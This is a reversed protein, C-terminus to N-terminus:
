KNPLHVAVRRHHHRQRPWICFAARRYSNKSRSVFEFLKSPLVTMLVTMHILSVKLIDHVTM